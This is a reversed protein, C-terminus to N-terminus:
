RVLTSLIIDKPVIDTKPLIIVNPVIDIDKSNSMIKLITIDFQVICKKCLQCQMFIWTTQPRGYHNNNSHEVRILWIHQM